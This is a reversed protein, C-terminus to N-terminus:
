SSSCPSDPAHRRTAELLNLTGVANVDFDDFPRRAALDHAPQAACHIIVDPRERESSSSPRGARDRIDLTRHRFARAHAAQLRALNWSTDGDPGFFDARM